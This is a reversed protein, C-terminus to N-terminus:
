GCKRGLAEAGPLCLHLKYFGHWLTIWGPEGDSKRGLFGGLKALERYFERVSWDRRPPRRRLGQLLLIWKMPVIERAPREPQHRSASRLQLLRVAVISLLGTLAELRGATRYQREELRCGTKLGKHFEEILPRQEYYEIVRWAGSFSQVPLSCYLVWRLPEVGTPAKVERVDVVHVEIAEIGCQRVWASVSPPSFMTLHGFRVELEATRAPHDKTAPLDLQYGGGVPLTNTYDDLPMKKGEPTVIKRHLQSARVVWDMRRERMRCYLEYQDGGRDCIAVYQTGDAPSGIQGVLEYWMVSERDARRLRQAGSSQRAVNKRYRIVQGALGLVEGDPSMALGSHLRFGRGGDNGTPGLGEIQRFRGFDTETTDMLILCVKTAKQRTAAYHPATVAAFTVDACGLLRYAAKLDAWNETERLTSGSPDAAVQAAFRVLRRTRRTDGLTCSAFQQEAWDNVDLVVGSM